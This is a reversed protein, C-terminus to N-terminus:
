DNKQNLRRLEKYKFANSKASITAIKWGAIGDLFGLRIIFMSIFRVFASLYPKIRNANKGKAFLKEATLRSYNDARKRHDEYDYYSYHHLDGKLTQNTLHSPYVLEEHVFAGEWQSDKKPFIRTKYDPYWGSHHIWKGCYNTKRNVTYVNTFGLKKQHLISNRLETSVEEDADISFITSFQALQNGYNKSDSYGTWKRAEFYVFPYNKCIEATKDTSGSDIVIVEDVLGVLSKLCRDINREENLTILVASLQSNNM